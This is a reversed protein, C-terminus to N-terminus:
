KKGIQRDIMDKLPSNDPLSRYLEKMNKMAEENKGDQLMRVTLLYRAEPNQPQQLLVMELSKKADDTVNGGAESIMASSYALLILPNGRSLLVAQKFANAASKYQRAGMFSQGLKVWAGLDKPSAKIGESQEIITKQIEKMEANHKRLMPVIEPAGLSYYFGFLGIVFVSSIVLTALRRQQFEIDRNKWLPLLLLWLALGLIIIFIFYVMM